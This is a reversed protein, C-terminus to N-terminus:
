KLVPDNFYIVESLIKNGEINKLLERAERETNCEYMFIKGKAYRTIVWM